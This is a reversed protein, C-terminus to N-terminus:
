WWTWVLPRVEDNLEKELAADDHKFEVKWTDMTTGLLQDLELLSQLYSISSAVEDQQAQVLQDQYTVVQFNTSRGTMLKTNENDLQKAKLESNRKALTIFKLRMNVNRVTNAVSTQLDTEAKQLEIKSRRKDSVAQLLAQKRNLYDEGWLNIPASLELGAKFETDTHNYGPNDNSYAEGYGGKLSLDWMRENEAMMFRTEAETVAFVKDLYAQNNKVAVVMCADLDPTVIRYDTKVPDIVLNPELNLFNLLNRRADDFSNRTQELSLEQSAEDAEAQVVDSQSMRGLEMKLRNTELLRKSRELAQRQIELNEKAQVFTFFHNVGENILGSLSDRLSLINRQEQIRALQISAMNYDIGGGKLLPQTVNISWSSQQGGSRSSDRDIKGAASDYSLSGDTNDNHTNDWTFTLTAGTPVKQDVTATAGVGATTSSARQSQGRMRKRKEIAELNVTGDVNVNPEFKAEAQELNFKQLVRSLYSTQVNLNNRLVLGVVDGMNLQLVVPEVADPTEEALSQGASALTLLVCSVIIWVSRQYEKM